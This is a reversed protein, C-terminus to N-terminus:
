EGELPTSSSPSMGLKGLLFNHQKVGLPKTLVDAIQLHSPVHTTTVAGEAIKDRIFHCDIEVHKTREHSVPNAAIALAAQNDSKIITPPLDSLGMDRLLMSLWTVECCTLAMARYEAEATSRAVVSQKKTKWSVPSTGLLVCYGSTSKRTTPCSAWDSDCYATLQAASSSALLIGQAPNNLLYRLVRKAAQMHVTTPKQMFQALNHVPFSLDSRTITLYILKGLLRQYKHPDELLEGKDPTLKMHTDMPLKLPTSTSMGFEKLLDIVYKRQSIFFGADSRDIELGLFYSVPGMDKLHEYDVPKKFLKEYPVEFNLAVNPLRNIIHVATLVCEGWFSLALGSQFRLARAVELVQRHKREVRANQQPTYPCSKQHLIGKKAFYEACAKDAFELANDSRIVQIKGDFQNGIFEEFKIMTSLYDSKKELLHVWTMRTWDDVLTLFFRFKGRTNVKYPGWIDTHILEFAKSAHLESSPFVLKTMKALPCTLCVQEKQQSLFPKVRDIHRLKSVSAHGLRQHWVSFQNNVKLNVDKNRMGIETKEGNMAVGQAYAKENRLYYLGQKMEGVGMVSRTTSDFIVCKSPQFMVECKGDQALKHIFLLNHNFQPVHLVNKLRMGNRLLVDGVHTILTTAGTPLTIIFNTPAHKVNILNKPVLDYSGLGRLRNDM